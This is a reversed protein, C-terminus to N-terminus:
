SGFINDLLADRAERHKREIDTAKGIISMLEGCKPCNQYLQGFKGEVWVACRQCAFDGHKLYKGPDFM